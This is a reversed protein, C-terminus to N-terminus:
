SISSAAGGPMPQRRPMYPKRMASHGSCWTPATAHPAGLYSHIAISPPIRLTIFWPPAHTLGAAVGPLGPLRHHWHWVQCLCINGEGDGVPSRQGGGWRGGCTVGDLQVTVARATHRALALWACAAGGAVAAAPPLVLPLPLPVALVALPVLVLVWLLPVGACNTGPMFTKDTERVRPAPGLAAKGEQSKRVRAEKGCAAGAAGAAIGGEALLLLLLLLLPEAREGLPTTTTLGLGAAVPPMPSLVRVACSSSPTEDMRTLM